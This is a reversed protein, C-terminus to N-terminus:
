PLAAGANQLLTRLFDANVTQAQLTSRVVPLGHTPEPVPLRCLACVFSACDLFAGRLEPVRAYGDPLSGSLAQYGM